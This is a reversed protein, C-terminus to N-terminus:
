HSGGCPKFQSVVWFRPGKDGYGLYGTGESLRKYGLAALAADYFRGAKAIDKVDVSLNDIM